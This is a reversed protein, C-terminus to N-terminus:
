ESLRQKIDRIDLLNVSVNGTWREQLGLVSPEEHYFGLFNEHEDNKRILRYLPGGKQKVGLERTVRKKSPTLPDNALWEFDDKFDEAKIGWGQEISQLKM